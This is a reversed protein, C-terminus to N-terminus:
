NSLDLIEPFIVNSKYVGGKGRNLIIILNQPLSYITDKM